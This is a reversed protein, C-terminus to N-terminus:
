AEQGTKALANQIMQLEDKNLGKLSINESDNELAEILNSIKGTEKGAEKQKKVEDTL